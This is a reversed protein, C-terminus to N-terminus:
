ICRLCSSGFALSKKLYSQPPNKMILEFIEKTLDSSDMMEHFATSQLIDFSNESHIQPIVKGAELRSSLANQKKCFTILRTRIRTTVWTSLKGKEPNYTQIAELFQLTAESYLEEWDLGTTKHFSWVMKQILHLHKKHTPSEARIM